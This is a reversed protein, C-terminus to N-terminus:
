KQYKNRYAIPTLGTIKKFVTRFAKTDTYGVEFMVETINKRTAEFARKAAEIKVRQIYEVVTNNTTSKFRREFSRRSVAVFDALVDVTIKEKYREEIYLQAKKIEEDNHDKQGEFMMFSSQSERDIDIAFYKSAMIATDRDTYKELLLLLLNWYSNAGGSSYIRGEETIISGDTVEVDPFTERFEGYYAWHTSCKKGKLLGTSALLFAGVCLSAVEAGKNYHSVLWPITSENKGVASKMDGFLAPVIILDTHEVENLLKDTTVTFFGDHVKVQRQHGVLQVDFLPESGSAQLFQNAASFMYRPNSVAEAVASEPVLISINKM